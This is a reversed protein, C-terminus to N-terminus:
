QDNDDGLYRIRMSGGRLVKKPNFLMDNRDPGIYTLVLWESGYRQELVATDTPKQERATM